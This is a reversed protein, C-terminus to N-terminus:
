TDGLTKFWVIGASDLGTVIWRDIGFKFFLFEGGTRQEACDGSWPFYPACFILHQEVRRPPGLHDTLARRDMGIEVGAYIIHSRVHVYVFALIVAAIVITPLTLIRRFNSAITNHNERESSM